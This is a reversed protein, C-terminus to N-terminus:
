GVRVTMNGADIVHYVNDATNVGAAALADAASAAPIVGLTCCDEKSLGQSVVYVRVGRVAPDTLYRLKVAKHDGLRYGRANIIEMAQEYTAAERLLAVFHDQGIGEPCDALLVIAGGDRVAWECNKIGKEAQYFSCALPGTVEAIIADAPRDIRRAFCQEAVRATKHLTELVPGGAAAIIRSGAQVLSVAATPTLAELSEVMRVVNEYIPNGALQCSRAESSLANAHNAEIDERSACGITCTKHPGTFGGFYHPEVSGIAIIPRAELLWPHGCWHCVPHLEHSDCDHWAIGGFPQEGPEGTLGAEFDRKTRDDFKHTGCAVLIRINEPAVHLRLEDLVSRSDTHRQPDNVIVTLEGGRGCFELADRLAQAPTSSAAEPVAPSLMRISPIDVM